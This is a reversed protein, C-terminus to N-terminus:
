RCLSCILNSVHFYVTCSPSSPSHELRGKCFLMYQQAEIKVPLSRVHGVIAVVALFIAQGVCGM